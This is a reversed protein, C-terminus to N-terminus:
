TSVDKLGLKTMGKQLSGIDLWLEKLKPCDAEKLYACGDVRFNNSGIMGDSEFQNSEGIAM